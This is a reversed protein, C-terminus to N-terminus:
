FLSSQKASEEESASRSDVEIKVVGFEGDYGPSIFINGNRVKLIANALDEGAAKSIEDISIKLLIDFESGLSETM